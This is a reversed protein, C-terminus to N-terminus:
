KTQLLQSHKAIFNRYKASRRTFDETILKVECKDAFLEDRFKMGEIVVSRHINM